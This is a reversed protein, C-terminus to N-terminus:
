HVFQWSFGNQTYIMDKPQWWFIAESAIPDVSRQNKIQISMGSKITSNGSKDEYYTRFTYERNSVLIWDEESFDITVVSGYNGMNWSDLLNVEKNWWKDKIDNRKKPELKGSTFVVLASTPSGTAIRIRIEPAGAVWSEVAQLASKTFRMRKMKLSEGDNRGSAFTSVINSWASYGESNFARVQYFYKQGAVGTDIFSYNNAETAAHLAFGSGTSRFIQHSAENAVDNWTLILQNANGHVVSLESPVAPIATVVNSNSLFDNRLSISYIEDAEHIFNGFKDVRESRSIVVVPFDPEDLTNIMFANGDADFAMIEFQEAEDFDDTLFTVPPIFTEVDWKDINVPVSIQLNPYIETLHNMWKDANAEDSRIQSIDSLYIDSLLNKVVYNTSIQHYIFTKFLINYDGDYMKLAEDRIATRLNPDHLSKAFLKSFDELLIDANLQNETQQITIIDHHIETAPPHIDSESICSVTFFVLSFTLAKGWNISLLNNAAKMDITTQYFIIALTYNIM